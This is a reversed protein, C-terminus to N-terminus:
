QKRQGSSEEPDTLVFRPQYFGVLKEVMWKAHAIAAKAEDINMFAGSHVIDNRFVNLEDSETKLKKIAKARDSGAYLPKLLKTIKGDIGNAWKLMSNVFAADFQSRAAFEKRIAFNAPIEAATAARLMAASWDERSHLGSMKHWQKAIKNLDDLDAYKKKAM